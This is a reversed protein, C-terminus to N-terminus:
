LADLGIMLRASGLVGRVWIGSSCANSCRWPDSGVVGGPLM